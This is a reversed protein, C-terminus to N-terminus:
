NEKINIYDVNNAIQQYNFWNTWPNNAWKKISRLDNNFDLIESYLLENGVINSQKELRYELMEKKAIMNACKLDSSIHISFIYISCVILSVVGTITIFGGIIEFWDNYYLNDLILLWVGILILVILSFIILMIIGRKM